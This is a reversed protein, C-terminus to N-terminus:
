KNITQSLNRAALLLEHCSREMEDVRVELETLYMEEKHFTLQQNDLPSAMSTIWFGGIFGLIVSGLFFRKNM